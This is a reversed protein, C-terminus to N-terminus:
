GEEGNWKPRLVKAEPGRIDLRYGDLLAQMGEQSTLWRELIYRVAEPIDVGMERAVVRVIEMQRGRLTVLSAEKDGEKTKPAM